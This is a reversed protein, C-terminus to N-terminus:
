ERVELVEPKLFRDRGSTNPPGKPDTVVLLSPTTNATGVMSGGLLRWAFIEKGLLSDSTAPRWCKSAIVESKKNGFGLFCLLLCRRFGSTTWLVSRGRGDPLEKGCTQEKEMRELEETAPHPEKLGM